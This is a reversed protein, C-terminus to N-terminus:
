VVRWIWRLSERTWVKYYRWLYWYLNEYGV